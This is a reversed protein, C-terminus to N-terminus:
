MDGLLIRFEFLIFLFLPRFTDDVWVPVQKGYQYVLRPSRHGAGAQQHDQAVVVGAENVIDTNALTLGLTSLRGRGSFFHGNM